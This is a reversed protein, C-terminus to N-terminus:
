TPRVDPAATNRLMGTRAPMEARAVARLDGERFAAGTLRDKEEDMAPLGIRRDPAVGDVRQPRARMGDRDIQAAARLRAPRGSRIADLTKGGIKALQDLTAAPSGDDDDSM